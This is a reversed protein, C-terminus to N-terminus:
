ISEYRQRRVLIATVAFFLLAMGLIVVINTAYRSLDDYCYLCYFADSIRSAPNLWSVAPAQRLLISNIRGGDMMGALFASFICVSICLGVKAGQKLKASLALLAGFSVGLLSGAMCALFLWGLKQGLDLRLVLLQYTLVAGMGCMQVVFGGLMEPLLQRYRPAPAMCSRAGVSSLNGQVRLVSDLGQFSGYLSVMALLAYFYPLSVSPVRGALPTEKTYSQASTLTQLRQAAAPDSKAAAEISAKQRVYSDLFQKLVTANIGNEKVRLAPTDGALIYADIQNDALAQKAAKEDPYAKLKLLPKEGEQVTQLVERFNADQEYAEDAVVGTPVTRFINAEDLSSFAFFFLTSILIPFLWTWFLDSPNRFTGIIRKSFINWFM